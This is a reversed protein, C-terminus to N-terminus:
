NDEIGYLDDGVIEDEVTNIRNKLASLKSKTDEKIKEEELKVAEFIKAIEIKKATEMAKVTEEAARATEKAIRATEEAVRSTEEAVRVSKNAKKVKINITDIISILDDTEKAKALLDNIRRAAETRAAKIEPDETANDIKFNTTM